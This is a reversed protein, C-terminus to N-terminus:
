NNITGYGTYYGSTPVSLTVSALILDGQKSTASLSTGAIDLIGSIGNASVALVSAGSTTNQSCRMTTTTSASYFTWNQSYVNSAPTEPAQKLAYSSSVGITYASVSLSSIMFTMLFAFGFFKRKFNKM